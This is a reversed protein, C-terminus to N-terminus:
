RTGAQAASAAGQETRRLNAGTRDRQIPAGRASQLLAGLMAWGTNRGMDWLIHRFVETEQRRCPWAPTCVNQSNRSFGHGQVPYLQGRQRVWLVAGAKRPFEWRCSQTATRRDPSLRPPQCLKYWSCPRNVGDWPM